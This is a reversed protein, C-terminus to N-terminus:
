FVSYFYVFFVTFCCCCFFSLLVSDRQSEGKWKQKQCYQMSQDSQSLPQIGWDHPPLLEFLLCFHFPSLWLSEAKSEKKAAATKGNKEYIKIGHKLRLQLPKNNIINWLKLARGTRLWPSALMRGIKWNMKVMQFQLTLAITFDNKKM